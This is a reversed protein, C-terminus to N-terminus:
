SSHPILPRDHTTTGGVLDGVARQALTVSVEEPAGGHETHRDLLDHLTDDADEATSHISVHRYAKPGDPADLGKARSTTRAGDVVLVWVAAAARDEAMLVRVALTGDPACGLRQAVTIVTTALGLHLCRRAVELESAGTAAVLEALPQQNDWGHRVLADLTPDWYFSGEREAAARLGARWDFDPDEALFQRLLLDAESRRCQVDPPLLRHCRSEVASIGRGLRDAIEDLAVGDRLWEVLQAHEGDTWIEGARRPPLDNVVDGAV